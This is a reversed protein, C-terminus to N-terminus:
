SREPVVLRAENMLRVLLFHDLLGIPVMSAGLLVFMVGITLNPPLLGGVPASAAFGVAVAATAGLYYARWPWDRIAVWLSALGVIGLTPGGAPIAPIGVNLSWAVVMYIGVYLLWKKSPKWVQRGFNTAYYRNLRPMGAMVPVFSVLMAVIAGDNTPHAALAVYGGVVLLMCVGAFVSRLGHLEHFRTSLLRVRDLGQQDM